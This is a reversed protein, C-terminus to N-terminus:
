LPNLDFAERGQDRTRPKTSPDAHAFTWGSDGHLITYGGRVLALPRPKAFKVCYSTIQPGSPVLLLMIAQAKMDVATGSGSRSATKAATFDEHWEQRCFAPRAMSMWAM